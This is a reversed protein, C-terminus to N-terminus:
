FCCFCILPHFRGVLFLWVHFEAQLQNAMITQWPAPFAQINLDALISMPWVVYESCHALANQYGITHAYFNGFASLTASTHPDPAAPPRDCAITLTSLVASLFPQFSAGSAIALNNASNKYGALQVSSSTGLGVYGFQSMNVCIEGCNAKHLIDVDSQGIRDNASLSLIFSNKPISTSYTPLQVQCSNKRNVVFQDSSKLGGFVHPTAPDPLPEPLTSLTDDDAKEQAFHPDAFICNYGTTAHMTLEIFHKPPPEVSIAPATFFAVQYPQASIQADEDSANTASGALLSIAAQLSSTAQIATNLDLMQFKTSKLVTFEQSTSSLLSDMLDRPTHSTLDQTSSDTPNPIEESTSTTQVVNQPHSEKLSVAEKQLLMEDQTRALYGPHLDEVVDQAHLQDVQFDQKPRFNLSNQANSAPSQLDNGASITLYHGFQYGKFDETSISLWDQGIPNGVSHCHLLYDQFIYLLYKDVRTLPIDKEVDSKDYTLSDIDSDRLTIMSMVDNDGSKVLAKYLPGEKPVQFVVNVVCDFADKAKARTLAM